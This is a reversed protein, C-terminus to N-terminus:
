EGCDAATAVGPAAPGRHRCAELTADAPGRKSLRRVRSRTIAHSRVNRQTQRIYGSLSDLLALKAIRHFEIEFEGGVPQNGHDDLFGGAGLAGGAAHEHEGPHVTFGEGHGELLSEHGVPAARAALEPEFAFGAAVGLADDAPEHVAVLIDEEELDFLFGAGAVGAVFAAEELFHVARSLGKGDSLFFHKVVALNVFLLVRPKGASRFGYDSLAKRLLTFSCAISRTTPQAFAM